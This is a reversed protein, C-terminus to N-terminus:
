GEARGVPGATRSRGVAIVRACGTGAGGRAGQAQLGEATFRRHDELVKLRDVAFVEFEELTMEERPPKEYLSVTVRQSPAAARATSRRNGVLM